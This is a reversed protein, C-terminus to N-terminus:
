SVAEPPRPQRRLARGAAWLGFGVLAPVGGVVVPILMMGADNPHAFADVLYLVFVLAGCGGCLLMMLGGLAMLAAGFFRRVPAPDSM